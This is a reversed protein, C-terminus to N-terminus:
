VSDTRWELGKYDPTANQQQEKIYQEIFKKLDQETYMRDRPITVWFALTDEGPNSVEIVASANGGYVNSTCDVIRIVSM